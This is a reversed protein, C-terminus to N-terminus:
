SSRCYGRIGQMQDELQQLGGRLQSLSPASATGQLKRGAGRRRTNVNDADLEPALMQRHLRNAADRFNVSGVFSAAEACRRIRDGEELQPCIQAADALVESQRLRQETAEIRDECQELEDRLTEIEDKSADRARKDIIETRRVEKNLTEQSDAVEKELKDAERALKRLATAKERRAKQQIERVRVEHRHSAAARGLRLLATRRRLHSLHRKTEAVEKRLSSLEAEHASVRQQLVEQERQWVSTAEDLRSSSVRQYELLEEKIRWSSSNQTSRLESLLQTVKERYSEVEDAAAALAQAEADLRVQEDSLLQSARM